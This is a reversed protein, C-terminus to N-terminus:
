GWFIRSSYGSSNRGPRFALNYYRVAKVSRIDNTSLANTAPDVTIDTQKDYWKETYNFFPTITVYGLKPSM